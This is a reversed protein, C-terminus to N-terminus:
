EDRREWYPAHQPIVWRVGGRPDPVDGAYRPIVHLHVHEVTQGAAPGENLGINYGDPTRTSEIHTRVLPLLAWMAQYEDPALDFLSSAHRRPVILTHGPTVPYADAFAFVLDASLIPSKDDAGIECFPCGLPRMV